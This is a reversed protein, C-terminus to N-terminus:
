RGRLFESQAIAELSEVAVPNGCRDSLARGRTQAVHVEPPDRSLAIRDDDYRTAACAPTRAASDGDDLPVNLGSM